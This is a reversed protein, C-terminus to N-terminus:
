PMGVALLARAFDGPDDFPQQQEGLGDAAEMLSARRQPDGRFYEVCFVRVAATLSSELRKHDIMSVIERLPRGERRAIEEMASWMASELRMSTRHGNVVINRLQLTSPVPAYSM